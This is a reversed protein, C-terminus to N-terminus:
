VFVSAAAMNLWVHEDAQACVGGREHPRATRQHARREPTTQLREAWSGGRAAASDSDCPESRSASPNSRPVVLEATARTTPRLAVMRRPGSPPRVVGETTAKGGPKAGSTPAAAARAAWASGPLANLLTFRIM